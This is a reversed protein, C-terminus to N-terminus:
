RNKRCVKKEQKKENEDLFVHNVEIPAIQSEFKGTEIASIAKLHSNLAFEDQSDRSVNFKKAVEEATLGMGWYWEPNEKSVKHHPV